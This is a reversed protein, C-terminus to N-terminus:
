FEVKPVEKDSEDVQFYEAKEFGLFSAIINTPFRRIKTNLSKVSNNYDMRATTIRNETGALEDQLRIFNENAKLDPYNEIVVNLGQLSRNLDNNAEALEEPTSASEIGSRAKTIDILVKEEHGTYGKVTEILNPILDARRKLQNEVQSWDSQVREDLNILGNYSSMLMGGIFLVIAVTIILYKKM